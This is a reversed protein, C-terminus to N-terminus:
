IRYGRKEISFLHWLFPVLQTLLAVSNKLKFKFINIDMCYVWFRRWFTKLLPAKGKQPPSPVRFISLFEVAKYHKM